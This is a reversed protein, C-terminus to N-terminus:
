EDIGVIIKIANGEHNFKLLHRNIGDSLGFCYYIGPYINLINKTASFGSNLLTKSNLPLKQFSKCDKKLTALLKDLTSHSIDCELAWYKLKIHLSEKKNNISYSKVDNKITSSCYIVIM